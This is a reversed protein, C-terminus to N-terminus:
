NKAQLASYIKSNSICRKSLYHKNLYFSLVLTGCRDCCVSPHKEKYKRYYEKNDYTYVKEEGKKNIVKIILTHNETEM